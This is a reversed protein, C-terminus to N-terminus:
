WLKLNHTWTGHALTEVQSGTLLDFHDGVFIADLENRKTGSPLKTSGQPSTWRAEVHARDVTLAGWSATTSEEPQSSYKASVTLASKKAGIM